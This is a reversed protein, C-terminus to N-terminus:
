AISGGACSCMSGEASQMSFVDLAPRSERSGSVGRDVYEVASWGRATVYDRLQLLQNEPFQELTSVRVYIGARILAERERCSRNACLPV